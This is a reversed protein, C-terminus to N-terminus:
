REREWRGGCLAWHIAGVAFDVAESPLDGIKLELLEFDAVITTICVAGSAPGIM